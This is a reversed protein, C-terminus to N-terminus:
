DFTVITWQILIDEQEPLTEYVGKGKENKGIYKKKNRKEKSITKIMDFQNFPNGKYKKTDTKIIEISGDNIRYITAIPSYKTNLDIVIGYDIAIKSNISKVYGLLEVENQIQDRINLSENPIEEWLNKLISSVDLDVYTKDTTRSYKEIIKLPLQLINVKEKSIQKSEGLIDYYEIFKQIKKINAFDRFYDLKVIIDLQRSNIKTSKINQLLEYFSDYEKKALKLLTHAMEKNLYKISLMEPYIVKNDKDALFKTNDLGFKYEGEKIDFGEIMEKKFLAVKDKNGKDSYTQLMVEYFEYPYHAKLYACYASDIAYSLAHSANFQYNVSDSLIKWIRESKEIAIKKDTNEENVIKESFGNIFREKLPIIIDAKKKSIAKLIGYSEDMPFGAYGLAAMTHEQFLVFSFPMEETQILKDFSPIDYDFPKRSEFTHYMSKFGPRIAAILATLESINRPKYKMAKQTTSSKEVQNVGITLGKAYIDWTKEDNKIINLLENVTHPKIGIRKYIKDILYVVDVKLLDNKLFKYKEAVGGDIVTTVVEKKTSESKCKILGIDEKINGQYILYGCPHASKSAIIGMYKESGKLIPHYKEEVYDYVNILDKDDDDAYKLDREYKEIQNTIENAIEFPVNQSKAYLKFASKIKFKGYAIMPYAHGEGLIKNQAQVFIEPTGCNLDLDPLSKTELIRTESMFREPYLRVPSSVRDVKSFGLLTNTIFSVGSGRGSNTIVGGDKIAQKVIEYDLLFYDVMGTNRVINVEKQIEQLYEKHRSEDIDKSFEKWQSTLLTTYIKNKEEQSLNPYLSPLKINKDFEIDDFELFINTNNIAKMIQEHNLIGQEIFRQYATEGDPYDLFWGDEEEYRIGRAELVDDRGQAQNPYIYHSDCGMIINLGLNLIRKNIERQIDTHHYQVELMFNDGFHNHLKMVIDDIDDYKWFAICASTIFVEKPPLSLLLEIDVRPKYYYGDINAESLIRNISKRGIESKAFICIHSNTKDKELRDKVWYAEAGFIFKLNNKKASEYVEYYRGQFGHECSSLITHELEKVRNVYDDIVMASDATFINSDSSHRHFNQFLIM